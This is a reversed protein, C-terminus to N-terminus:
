FDECKSPQMPGVFLFRQANFHIGAKAEQRVIINNKGTLSDPSYQEEAVPAVPSISQLGQEFPTSYYYLWAPWHLVRMSSLNQQVLNM